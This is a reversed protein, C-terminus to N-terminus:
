DAATAAVAQQNMGSRTEYHYYAALGIAAVVNSITVAWFVGHVDWGLPYALAIAVPLRVGWYQTLSAILSTRTRRAGNFGAQLLYTAGIAWYGVALIVLYDAALALEASTADPVFVVALTEPIALQILGVVTLVAVAIGVGAWTTRRARDPREAGLNQGIMSQAAKQLGMAPLFAVSAVRAGITYAALGAAGGVLAVIWIMGVRALQSSSHQAAVPWGIDVIERWDDIEVSLAERTLRFGDRGSVFMALGLAFGCGYGIGTALAAGAVGFEPFPGWGFILFPDLVVNVGVALLNVYLAARADGWGVFGGELVDSASLVPIMLAYVALYEAAYRTTTEDAGFLNMIDRAFWFAVLGVVLGVGVGLITGNVAARRGGALDDAGVRQSVLVQTGVMAGLTVMLLLTTVPFNLGVAAVAELSHRGLWFTDVLQQVVQVVNQVVLPAALLVLTAAIPGDTIEERDVDFM